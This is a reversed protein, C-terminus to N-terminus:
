LSAGSFEHLKKSQHRNVYKERQKKTMKKMRKEQIEERLKARKLFKVSSGSQLQEIQKDQIEKMVEKRFKNDKLTAERQRLLHLAKKIKAQQEGDSTKLLMKQLKQVTHKHDDELFSWDKLDCIGHVRPDFRPDNSHRKHLKMHNVGESYVERLSRSLHIGKKKLEKFTVVVPKDAM